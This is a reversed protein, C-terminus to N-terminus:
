ILAKTNKPYFSLLIISFRLITNNKVKQPVERSNEMTAAGNADRGIICLLEKKEVEKGKKHKSKLWELLLKSKCKGSLLHYQGDKIDAM